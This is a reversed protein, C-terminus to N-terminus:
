IALPSNQNLPPQLSVLDRRMIPPEVQELAYGPISRLDVFLPQRPPIQLSDVYETM